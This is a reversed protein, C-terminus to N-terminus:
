RVGRRPPPTPTQSSEWTRVIALLDTSQLAREIVVAALYFALAGILCLVAWGFSLTIWVAVFAFGLVAAFQKSSITL